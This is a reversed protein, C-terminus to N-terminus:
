RVVKMVYDYYNRKPPVVTPSLPKKHEEQLFCVEFPKDVLKCQPQFIKLFKKCDPHSCRFPGTIHICNINIM